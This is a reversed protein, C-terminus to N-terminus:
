QPSLELSSICDKCAPLTRLQAQDALVPEGLVRGHEKFHSCDSNHRMRPAQGVIPTGDLHTPPVVYKIQPWEVADIM